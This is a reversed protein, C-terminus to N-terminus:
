SNLSSYKNLESSSAQNRTDPQNTKQKKFIKTISFFSGQSDSITSQKERRIVWDSEGRYNLDEFNYFDPSLLYRGRDFPSSDINLYKESPDAAYQKINATSESLRYQSLM